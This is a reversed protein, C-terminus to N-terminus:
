RLRPRGRARRWAGPCVAAARCIEVQWLHVCPAPQETRDPSTMLRKGVGFLQALATTLAIGTAQRPRIRAGRDIMWSSSLSLRLDVAVAVDLFRHVSCSSDQFFPPEWGLSLKVPTVFQRRFSGHSGTHCMRRRSPSGRRAKSLGAPRFIHRASSPTSLCPRIHPTSIFGYPDHSKWERSGSAVLTTSCDAGCASGSPRMAADPLVHRLTEIGIASLRHCQPSACRAASAVPSWWMRHVVVSIAVRTRSYGRAQFSSVCRRANNTRCGHPDM